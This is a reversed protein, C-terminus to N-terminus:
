VPPAAGGPAAGAPGLAPTPMGGAAMSDATPTNEADEASSTKDLDEKYSDQLDSLDIEQNALDMSGQKIDDLLEMPLSIEVLWVKTKIMKPYNTGPVFDDYNKVQIPIEVKTTAYKVKGGIQVIRKAGRPDPMLKYPWMFTCKVNYRGMVPGKVLEGLLWNKTAYLDAADLVREFDLLVSMSGDSTMIGKINNVISVFDLDNFFDNAPKRSM